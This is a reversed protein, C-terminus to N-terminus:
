SLSPASSLVGCRPEGPTQGSAAASHDLFASRRGIRARALIKQLISSKGGFDTMHNITALLLGFYVLSNKEEISRSKSGM